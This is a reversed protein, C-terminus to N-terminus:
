ALLCGHLQLIDESVAPEALAIHAVPDSCLSSSLVQPCVCEVDQPGCVCVHSLKCKLFPSLSVSSCNIASARSEYM